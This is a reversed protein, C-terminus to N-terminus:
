LPDETPYSVTAREILETAFVQLQEYPKGELMALVSEMAARGMEYFPQRVTTVPIPALVADLSDDFGILSLQDPVKLGMDQAARIAGVVSRDNACFIATPRNPRSLIEKAACYASTTEFNGDQIWGDRIPWGHEAMFDRYASLREQGDYMEKRGSIHAIRRHGYRSLYSMAQWVGARNNVTLYPLGGQPRGAVVALPIKREALEEILEDNHAPSLLVLGDARGDMVLDLVEETELSPSHTYILVDHRRSQAVDVIGSIASGLLPWTILKPGIKPHLVGVVGSRKTKMSRAIRNPRYDLEVAASKIREKLDTAVPKPGDNLAYSVTSVSVGVHKAIDKLSTRM